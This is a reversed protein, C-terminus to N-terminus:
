GPAGFTASYMFDRDNQVGHLVPSSPTFAEQPNHMPRGTYQLFSIHRASGFDQLQCTVCSSYDIPPASSATTPIMKLAYSEGDIWITEIAYGPYHRSRLLDAYFQPYADIFSPIAITAWDDYLFISDWTQNLLERFYTENLTYVIKKYTSIYKQSRAGVPVLAVNPLMAMYMRIGRLELGGFVLTRGSDKALLYMRYYPARYDLSLRNVPVVSLSRQYAGVFSGAMIAGLVLVIMMFAAVVKTKLRGYLSPFGIIATLSIHSARIISSTWGSLAGVISALLFGTTLAFAGLSWLANLVLFLATSSRKKFLDFSVVFLSLLAFFAFLPHFGYGLGIALARPLDPHFLVGAQIIFAERLLVAARGRALAIVLLFPIAYGLISGPSRRKVSLILFLLANGVVFLLYPERMMYALIFFVSSLLSNIMRGEQVHRLSFYLGVLAMFLGPTETLITAAFVTFVPFLPLSFILLSVTKEPVKLRRLIMLFLVISGVAWIASYLAGLLLFTWVDKAGRFFLIFTAVFAPRYYTIPVKDLIYFDYYFAEDPLIYGTISSFYYRAGIVSLVIAITTGLAVEWHGLFEIRRSVSDLTKNIKGAINPGRPVVGRSGLGVSLRKSVGV